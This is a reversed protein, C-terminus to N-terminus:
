LFLLVDEIKLHEPLPYPRDEPIPDEGEKFMKRVVKGINKGLMTKATTPKGGSLFFKIFEVPNLMSTLDPDMIFRIQEDLGPRITLARRFLWSPKLAKSIWFDYLIAAENQGRGSKKSLNILSRIDNKNKSNLM